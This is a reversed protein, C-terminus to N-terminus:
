NTVTFISDNEKLYQIDSQRIQVKRWLPNLKQWKQIFDNEIPLSMRYNKRYRLHPIIFFLACLTFGILWALLFPSISSTPELPVAPTIRNDTIPPMNVTVGDLIPLSQTLSISEQVTFMKGLDNVATFISFQSPVSVPVLLRWLAVGWLIIFTM